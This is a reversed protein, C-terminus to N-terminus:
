MGYYTALTGLAFALAGSAREDSMNGHERAWTKVSVERGVVHWVCSGGPEGLAAIAEFVRDRAQSARYGIDQPLMRSGASRVPTRGPDSAKLTQLAGAQFDARFREAAGAQEDTITGRRVMRAITDVARDVLSRVPRDDADYTVVEIGRAIGGRRMPEPTPRPREEDMAGMWSYVPAIKVM